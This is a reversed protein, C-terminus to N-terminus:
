AKTELLAASEGETKHAAQVIEEYQDEPLMAKAATVFHVSFQTMRRLEKEIREAETNLRHLETRRHKLAGKARRVWDFDVLEGADRQEKTRILQQEIDAIEDIIPVREDDIDHLQDLLELRYEYENQPASETM